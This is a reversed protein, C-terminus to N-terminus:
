TANVCIQLTVSIMSADQSNVSCKLDSVHTIPSSTSIGFTKLVALPSISIKKGQIEREGEITTRM